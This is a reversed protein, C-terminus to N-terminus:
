TVAIRRSVDQLRTALVASLGMALALAVAPQQRGLTEFDQPSLSWVKCDSYAVVSAARPQHSFFSGEGVVTGPGLIALQALGQPTRVDVKLDGSELFYLTRDNAGQAILLHGREHRHPRLYDAVAYWAPVGVHRALQGDERNHAVAALLGEIEPRRALAPTQDMM